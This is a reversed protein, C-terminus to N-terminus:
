SFEVPNAGGAAIGLKAAQVQPALSMSCPTNEGHTSAVAVFPLALSEDDAGMARLFARHPLRDVGDVVRRSPWRAADTSRTPAEGGQAGVAASTDPRSRGNARQGSM